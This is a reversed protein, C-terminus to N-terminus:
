SAQVGNFYAKRWRHIATTAFLGAKAFPDGQAFAEAEARDDSDYILVSGFGAKGDDALLAGAALLRAKHADLYALHEPRVRQRLELSDPKDEAIIIFPM